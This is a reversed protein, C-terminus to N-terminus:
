LFMSGCLGSGDRKTGGAWQREKGPIPPIILGEMGDPTGWIGRWKQGGGCEPGNKLLGQIEHCGPVSCPPPCIM